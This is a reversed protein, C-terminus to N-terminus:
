QATQRQGRRWIVLFPVAFLLGLPAIWLAMRTTRALGDDVLRAAQPAILPYDITVVEGLKRPADAGLMPSNFRIREGSDSVFEYVEFRRITRRNRRDRDDGEVYGVLTATGRRSSSRFAKAEDNMHLVLAGFVGVALVWSLAGFLAWHKQLVFSGEVVVRLSRCRPFRM